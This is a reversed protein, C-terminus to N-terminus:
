RGASTEPAYHGKYFVMDRSVTYTRTGIEATSEVPGPDNHVRVCNFDQGLRLLFLPAYPESM